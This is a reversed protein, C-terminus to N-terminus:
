YVYYDLDDITGTQQLFAVVDANLSLIPKPLDCNAYVHPVRVLYYTLNYNNALDVLMAQKDWVCCLTDRAMANVDVNYNNNEGIRINGNQMVNYNASDLGLTEAFKQVDFNISKSTDVYFYTLCTHM